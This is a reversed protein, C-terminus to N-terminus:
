CIFMRRYMVICTVLIVWNILYTGKDDDSDTRVGFALYRDNATNSVLQLIIFCNKSEANYDLQCNKDKTPMTWRLEFGLDKHLVECNLTSQFFLVFICINIQM